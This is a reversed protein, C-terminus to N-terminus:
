TFHVVLRPGGHYIDVADLLHSHHPTITEPSSDPM